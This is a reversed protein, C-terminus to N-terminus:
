VHSFDEGHHRQYQREGGHDFLNDLSAVIKSPSYLQTAAQGLAQVAQIDKTIFGDLRLHAELQSVFDAITGIRGDIFFDAAKEVLLELVDLARDVFSVYKDRLQFPAAQVIEPSDVLQSFLHLPPGLGQFLGDNGEVVRDIEHV